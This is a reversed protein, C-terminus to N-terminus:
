KKPKKPEKKKQTPDPMGDILHEILQKKIFVDYSLLCIFAFTHLFEEDKKNTGPFALASEDYRQLIEKEISGLTERDMEHVSRYISDLDPGGPAGFYKETLPALLTRIDSISLFSKFYYVFILLLLHEKSYKKKLPAPIVSNKAYNNIMTKTLIKDDPYRRCSKLQEDMFTTVQDMYLAIDPIDDPQIDRLGSFFDTIEKLTKKTEDAM